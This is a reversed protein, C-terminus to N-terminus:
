VSSALVCSSQWYLKTWNHLLVVQDNGYILRGEIDIRSDFLDVPYSKRSITRWSHTCEAFLFHISILRINVQCIASRVNHVYPLSCIEMNILHNKVSWIIVAFLIELIIQSMRMEHSVIEKSFHLCLHCLFIRVAKRSIYVLSKRMDYKLIKETNSHTFSSENGM